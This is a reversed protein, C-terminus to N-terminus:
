PNVDGVNMWSSEASIDTVVGSSFTIDRTKKQLTTGDIRLDTIVTIIDSVGDELSQAISKTIIPDGDTQGFKVNNVSIQAPTESDETFEFCSRHWKMRPYISENFGDVKFSVFGDIVV